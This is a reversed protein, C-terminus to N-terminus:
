LRKLAEAILRNATELAETRDPHEASALVSAVIRLVYRTLFDRGLSLEKSYAPHAKNVFITKGDVFYERDDNEDSYPLVEYGLGGLRVRRPPAPVRRAQPSAEVPLVTTAQPAAQLHPMAQSPAQPMVPVAPQLAAQQLTAPHLTAPQPFVTPTRQELQQESKQPKFPQLEFTQITETSGGVEAPQAEAPLEVPQMGTPLEEAQEIAASLIRDITRYAQLESHTLWGKAESAKPFVQEALFRRVLSKFKEYGEDEIIGAKDAFRVTIADARLWGTIRNMQSPSFGFLSRTVMHGGHMVAIGREEESLPRNAVVIEGTVGELQVPIREGTVEPPTVRVAGNPSWPKFEGTRLYVEFFAERLIPLQRLERVVKRPDVKLKPNLLWIESGERELPPENLAKVKGEGEALGAITEEDIVFCAHFEGRRTRVKMAKFCALFSLRGTGYRGTRARGFRPSFPELQKHTSGVVLFREVAEEGMGVDDELVAYDDSVTIIVKTADEDYADELLERIISFPSLWTKSAFQLFFDGSVTLRVAYLV